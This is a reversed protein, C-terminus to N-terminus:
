SWSSWVDGLGNFVSQGSITTKVGVMCHAVVYNATGPHLLSAVARWDDEAYCSLMRVRFASAEVRCLRRPTFSSILTQFCNCLTRGLCAPCGFSSAGRSFCVVLLSLIAVMVQRMGARRLRRSQLGSPGGGWASPPPGRYSQSRLSPEQFYAPLPGAQWALLEILKRCMRQGSECPLLLRSAEWLM